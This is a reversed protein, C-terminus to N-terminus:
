FTPSLDSTDISGFIEELYSTKIDDLDEELYQQVLSEGYSVEWMFNEVDEESILSEIGDKFAEDLTNQIHRLMRERIEDRRM